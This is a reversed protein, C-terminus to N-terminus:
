RGGKGHLGLPKKQKRPRRPESDGTSAGRKAGRRRGTGGKTGNVMVMLRERTGLTERTRKGPRGRRKDTKQKQRTRESAVGEHGDRTHGVENRKSDHGGIGGERWTVLLVKSLAEESKVVMVSERERRVGCQGLELLAM